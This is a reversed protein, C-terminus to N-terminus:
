IFNFHATEGGIKVKILAMAAGAIMWSDDKKSSSLEDV